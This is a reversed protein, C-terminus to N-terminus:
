DVVRRQRRREQQVAHVAGEHIRQVLRAGRTPAALGRGREGLEDVADDGASRGGAVSHALVTAGPEGSHCRKHLRRPPHRGLPFPTRMLSGISSRGCGTGGAGETGLVRPGTPVRRDGPRMMKRVMMVRPMQAQTHDYWDASSIFRYRPWPRPPTMVNTRAIKM